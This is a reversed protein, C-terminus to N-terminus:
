NEQMYISWIQLITISMSLLLQRVMQRCQYTCLMHESVSPELSSEPVPPDEYIVLQGDEAVPPSEPPRSDGRPRKPPPTRLIMRGESPNVGSKERQLEARRSQSRFSSSLSGCFASPALNFAFARSESPNKARSSQSPGRM